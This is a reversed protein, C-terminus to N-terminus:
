TCIEFLRRACSRNLHSVFQIGGSAKAVSRSRSTASFRFLCSNVMRGGGAGAGTGDSWVHSIAAYDANVIQPSCADALHSGQSQTTKDYSWIVLDPTNETIEPFQASRCTNRSAEACKHRQTIQTSDLSAFHCLNAACARHEVEDSVTWTASMNNKDRLSFDEKHGLLRATANDKGQILALLSPLDLWERPSRYLVNWLRNKCIGLAEARKMADLYDEDYTINAPSFGATAARIASQHSPDSGYHVEITALWEVLDYIVRDPREMANATGGWYIPTKLCQLLTISLCAEIPRSKVQPNSLSTIFCAAWRL